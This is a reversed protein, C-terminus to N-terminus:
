RGGALVEDSCNGSYVEPRVFDPEPSIEFGLRVLRKKGPEFQPWDFESLGNEPDNVFSVWAGQMVKTLQLQAASPPIRTVDESNGFM